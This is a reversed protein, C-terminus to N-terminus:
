KKRRKALGNRVFVLEVMDVAEKASHAGTYSSCPDFVPRTSLGGTMYTLGAMWPGVGDHIEMMTGLSSKNVEECNKVLLHLRGFDAVYLGPRVRKLHPGWRDPLPAPELKRSEPM